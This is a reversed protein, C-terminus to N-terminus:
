GEHFFNFVEEIGVMDQIRPFYKWRIRSGKGTDGIVATPYGNDAAPKRLRDVGNAIDILVAPM